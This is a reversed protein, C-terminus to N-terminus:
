SSTKYSELTSTTRCSLVSNCAALHLLGSEIHAWQSLAHLLEKCHAVLAFGRRRWKENGFMSFCERHIYAFNSQMLDAYQLVSAVPYWITRQLAAFQNYSCDTYSSQVHWLEYLSHTTNVESYCSCSHWCSRILNSNWLTIEFTLKVWSYLLFMNVYIM